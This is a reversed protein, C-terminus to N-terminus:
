RKKPITTIAWEKKSKKLDKVFGDRSKVTRFQFINNPKGKVAVLFRGSGKILLSKRKVM